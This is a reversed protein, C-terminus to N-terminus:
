GFVEDVVNRAYVGKARPPLILGFTGILLPPLVGFVIVIVMNRLRGGRFNRQPSPMDAPNGVLAVAAALDGRPVLM